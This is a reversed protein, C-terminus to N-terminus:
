KQASSDRAKRGNRWGIVFTFFLLALYFSTAFILPINLVRSRVGEWGPPGSAAELFHNEILRIYSAIRDIQLGLVFVQLAAFSAVAFPIWWV